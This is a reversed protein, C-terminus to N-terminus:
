PREAPEAPLKPWHAVYEAVLKEVDDVAYKRAWDATMSDGFAVAAARLYIAFGQFGGPLTSVTGVGKRCTSMAADVAPNAEMAKANPQEFILAAARLCAEFSEGVLARPSMPKDGAAKRWGAFVADMMSKRHPAIKAIAQAVLPADRRGRVFEDDVFRKDAYYDALERLGPWVQLVHKTYSAVARDTENGEADVPNTSTAAARTLAKEIKARDPLRWQYTFSNYRDTRPAGPYASLMEALYHDVWLLHLYVHLYRDVETTYSAEVLPVDAADRMAYPVYTAADIAADITVPMAPAAVAIPRERVPAPVPRTTDESRCAFLLVSLCAICWM